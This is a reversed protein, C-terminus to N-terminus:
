YGPNQIIGPSNDLELQPFPFLLDRPLTFGAQPEIGGASYGDWLGRRKQDYWRKYEFALEIRREELVADRFQDKSLGSIDAPSVNVGDPTNRARARVQNVYGYAEGSPGSVENLAEAAILLVEAYRMTAYNIDSDRGNNSTTGPSGYYKRISPRSVGRSYNGFDPWQVLDGNIDIMETIFSAAKRYDNDDFSDFVELSPVAVSWGEAAASVSGRIGTIPAMFDRSLNGGDDQDGGRFDVSFVTEKLGPQLSANFLNAFDSELSYDFSGSNDIVFKAENYAKQWQELTLYVSALYAAATGKSPLSRFSQQNPLWIKAFELDKIIEQYVTAQDTKTIGEVQSPDTVPFDLYPIDGFTRVLHYYTFARMFRAQASVANVKAEEDEVFEAAAIATNANGIIAYMTPWFASVMGSTADMEFRDVEQRRSPTTLDGITCMDSRLLLSLVYKRGWCSESALYSYSGNVVAQLDETTKVFGVPSLFGQPEEELDTCNVLLLSATVCLYILKKM